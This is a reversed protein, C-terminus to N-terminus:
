RAAPAPLIPPNEYEDEIAFLSVDELIVAPAIISASSQGGMRNWAVAVDGVAIIDKLDGLVLSDFECGRLPEERGDPYIKSVVLPDAPGGTGGGGGGRQMRAILRRIDGGGSPQGASELVSIRLAYDLGEDEVAEFLAAMLEETPLGESSEVYLCGATARGGRGHGSTEPFDKTPVRSRVMDVLKGDVVLDVRSPAVGEDDRSYHGALQTGGHDAQAPDDWVSFSKPLIRRGVLKELSDTGARRRGGGVPSPNAAVGRGLLSDFLQAAAIGDFLVPGSYDELQPATRSGSLRQSLVDVDALLEEESPLAGMSDAVHVISDSLTQGDDAQVEARLVLTVTGSAARLQTGESNVLYDTGGSVSLDVGSDKLAPHSKFRASVRRIREEWAPADIDTGGKPGVDFVADMPSFDAARDETGRSEMHAVKQSLTEVASKYAADTALWVAHRIATYDDEIPLAIGGGGGGGGGGGRRGRRGGGFGGGSFNTNDLWYSGARVDANLTRRNTSASSVLGGHSASMRHGQRDAIRFQLFYPAEIDELQLEQSRALEDRLALMVLDLEETGSEPELGIPSALLPPRDQSRAKKEIEIQEVLISPSIASVPVWGSEAGCTGNFVGPDDATAVIRSFCSLPTGVIDAGRVLEDPRGDAYVKYVIVPEVKFAQPGGRGTMTFGGTIDEFLLGFPKDQAVCQEVLLERLREYPVQMSSEVILNGQRSVVDRGPERRGHGNSQAFGGVPSRSLLFTQLVGDKVLEVRQAPVGEDDYRYFGRLDEDGHRERTPDDVVSLFSPLVPENVMKTFTQGEDVDKQRHGEIRHGFIEHFFVGSARNLLIAPGIYPEVLPAERLALVQAIVKDMAAHMAEVDPLEEPSSANFLFGQSLDMGDDAKTAVSVMVRLLTRGTKLRTGESSVMFRNEASASLSASSSYILPHALARASVERVRSAWADRDIALGADVESAVSPEEHSFDDIQEEEEVKTKQNTVVQQYREVASRFASDTAHWLAQRIADPDDDLSVGAGGGVLRAFDFGFGGGRIQRTNDLEHSGVRLDVDLTRVRNSNDAILAGLRAVVSVTSIDTISYGMYYPRLGNSALLGDMSFELEQEMVDLLPTAVTDSARATQVPGSVLAVTASVVLVLARIRRPTQHLKMQPEKRTSDTASATMKTTTMMTTMTMTTTMTVQTM